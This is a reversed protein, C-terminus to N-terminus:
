RGDYRGCVQHLRRLSVHGGVDICADTDRRGSPPWRSALLDMAQLYWAARQLYPMEKEAQGHRLIPVPRRRCQQRCTCAPSVRCSPAQHLSKNDQDRAAIGPHHRCLLSRVRQVQRRRHLRCKPEDLNSIKEEYEKKLKERDELMGDIVKSVLKKERKEAKEKQLAIVEDKAALAARHATAQATLMDRLSECTERETKYRWLGRIDFDM